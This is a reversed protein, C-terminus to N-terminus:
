LRRHWHDDLSGSREHRFRWNRPFKGQVGAVPQFPSLHAEDESAENVEETEDSGYDEDEPRQSSNPEVKRRRDAEIVAPWEEPEKLIRQMESDPKVLEEPTQLSKHSDEDPAPCTSKASQYATNNRELQQWSRDFRHSPHEFRTPRPPPTSDPSSSRTPIIPHSEIECGVRVGMCKGCRNSTKDLEETSAAPSTITVPENYSYLNSVFSGSVTSSTPQFSDTRADQQRPQAAFITNTRRQKRVEKAYKEVSTAITFLQESEPVIASVATNM